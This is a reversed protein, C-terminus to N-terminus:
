LNLSTNPTQVKLEQLILPNNIKHSKNYFTTGRWNSLGIKYGGTDFNLTWKDFLNNTTVQFLFLNNSSKLPAGLRDILTGGTSLGPVGQGHDFNVIYHQYIFCLKTLGSKNLWFTFSGVKIWHFSTKFNVDQITM